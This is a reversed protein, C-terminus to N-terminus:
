RKTHAPPQVQLPTPFLRFGFDGFSVITAGVAVAAAGGLMSSVAFPRLHDEGVQDFAGIMLAAAGVAIVVGGVTVLARNGVDVKATVDLPQDLLTFEGSRVGDPQLFFFKGERDGLTVECPADCLPQYTVREESVHQTEFSFEHRAEGVVRCLAVPGNAKVRLRVPEGPSAETQAAVTAPVASLLLAFTALFRLAM